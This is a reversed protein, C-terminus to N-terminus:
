ANSQMLVKPSVEHGVFRFYDEVITDRLASLNIPVIGIEGCVIGGAYNALIAAERMTAGGALAVTLTSIVTDGAGSVDAVRRAKTPIKLLEGSQRFLSMGEEGLTLLVNDAKLRQLLEQGIMEISKPSNLRVGLAEEAEKRNPKFVTVGEYEFFNNFKPDVAVMVDHQRALEVAKRILSSVVVGKNYDEIIIADLSRIQRELAVMINQVINDGVDAKSEQDIRVVHQHHAIVRTKCTTPRSSDELIGEESYGSERVISRLLGGADDGGVIGFILPSGGLSAINHAVNAAGGLRTAESEIEVVPVPAEPSIRAVKGWYYRDLMLDGIVAIRKGSFATILSDLREPSIHEM